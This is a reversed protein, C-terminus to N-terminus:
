HHCPLDKSPLSHYLIRFFFRKMTLPHSKLPDSSYGVQLEIYSSDTMGDDNVEVGFVMREPKISIEKLTEDTVISKTEYYSNALLPWSFLLETSDADAYIYGNKFGLVGGNSVILWPDTNNMSDCLVAPEPYNVEWSLHLRDYTIGEYDYTDM